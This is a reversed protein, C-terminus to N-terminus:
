KPAAQTSLFKYLPEWYREHWGSDLGDFDGEPFGTHDLVVTTGSPAPTLEFRVISYVGPKWSAPRWAQVIRQDRVLEVNRGVIMGGFMTFAGGETADIQAALGTFAAFQASDLLAGYIRQPSAGFNIEQHLSTRAQNAPTSPPEPMAPQQALGSVNAGAALGGMAVAVGTILQRRTPANERTDRGIRERM